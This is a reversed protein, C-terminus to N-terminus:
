GRWRSCGLGAESVDITLVMVRRRSRQRHLRRHVIACSPTELIDEHAMLAGPLKPNCFTFLETVASTAPDLGITGAMDKSLDSAMAVWPPVHM